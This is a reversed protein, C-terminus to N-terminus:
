VSWDPDSMSVGANPWNCRYFCSGCRAMTAHLPHLPNRCSHLTHRSRYNQSPRPSLSISQSDNKWEDDDKMMMWTPELQWTPAFAVSSAASKPYRLQTCNRHGLGASNRGGTRTGFNQIYVCLSHSLHRLLAVTRSTPCTACAVFCHVRNTAVAM